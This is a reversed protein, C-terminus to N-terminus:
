GQLYPGATLFLQSLFAPHFLYSYSYFLTKTDFSGDDFAVLTLAPPMETETHVM